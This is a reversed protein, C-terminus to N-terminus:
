YVPNGEVLAIETALYLSLSLAQALDKEWDFKKAIKAVL